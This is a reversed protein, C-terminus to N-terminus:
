QEDDSLHCHRSMHDDYRDQEGQAALMSFFNELNKFEEIEHANDLVREIKLSAILQRYHCILGDLKIRNDQRGVINSRRMFYAVVAYDESNKIPEEPIPQLVCELASDFLGLAADYVAPPINKSDIFKQNLFIKIRGAMAAAVFSYQERNLHDKAM